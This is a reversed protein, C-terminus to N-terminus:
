IAIWIVYISYGIGAFTAIIFLIMFIFNLIITATSSFIASITLNDFAELAKQACLVTLLLTIILEVVM